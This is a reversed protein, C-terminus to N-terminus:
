VRFDQGRRKSRHDRISRRAGVSFSLDCIAAVGGFSLSLNEVVFYSVPLAGFAYLDQRPPVHGAGISRFISFLRKLKIWRGNLGAPEFLIFLALVLGFVFIELGFQTAIRDGAVRSSRPSSRRCCASSAGRRFDRRAVLRTRRDGGHAGTRALAVPQLRGAHRIPPSARALRRRYRHHRGFDRVRAGQLRAVWIGLSHAAAESDRVGVFARGTHGRLLNILGLLVLMLIVLCLFYFARQAGFDFGFVSPAPVPM